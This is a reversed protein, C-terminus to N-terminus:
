NRHFAVWSLTFERPNGELLRAPIAVEFYGDKLPIGRESAFIRVPVPPPREESIGAERQGSSLSERTTNPQTSSVSWEVTINGAAAKFSELGRLNLRVLIIEPWADARRQITATDIGFPCVVDIVTTTENTLFRIRTDERRPKAQFAPLPRGNTAGDAPSLMRVRVIWREKMEVGAKRLLTGEVRVKKGNFAEARRLAAGDAFDLAWTIGDSTITTGTTEGGVAVVGTHLTGVVTVTVADDAGAAIGAACLPVLFVLCPRM